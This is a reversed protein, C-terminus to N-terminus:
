GAWKLKNAQAWRRVVLAKANTPLRNRKGRVQCVVRRKRDVEITLLKREGDCDRVDMTYIASQRRLCSAAFSAACRLLNTSNKRATTCDPQAM